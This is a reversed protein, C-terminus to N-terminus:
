TSILILKTKWRVKQQRVLNNMEKESVKPSNIRHLVLIEEQLHTLKMQFLSEVRPQAQILMVDKHVLTAKM